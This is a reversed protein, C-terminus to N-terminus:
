TSATPRSSRKALVFGAAGLALVWGLPVISDRDAPREPSQEVFGGSTGGAAPNAGIAVKSNSVGGKVTSNTAGTKTVGGNLVEPKNVGNVAGPSGPTAPDSGSSGSSDAGDAGGSTSNGSSSQDGASNSDNGGSPGSAPNSGTGAAPNDGGSPNAGGGPAPNNGGGPDPNAEPTPTEEEEVPAPGAGVPVATYSEKTPAGPIQSINTFAQDVLNQPLPAYDLAVAIEQGKGVAYNLFQALAKGKEPTMGDTQHVLAYSYTSPNYAAPDPPDFVLKQTGRPDDGAFKLAATVAAETPKVFKGAANLVSAVPISRVKAFGSEVVAISSEGTSPNAVYDATEVSGGAPVSGPPIPWQSSPPGPAGEFGSNPDGGEYGKSANVFDSWIQPPAMKICYQGLIYSTGAPGKRLVLKIRKQKVGALATNIPRGDPGVKLRPDTWEKIEGTFIACATEATLKLDTIARGASDRLNFMFAMGGASVPVYAFPFTPTDSIYPIDSMAFDVGKERFRQRGEGSSTGLYNVSLNYPPVRVDALWQVVELLVFSSGEGSITEAAAAPRWPLVIFMLMALALRCSVRISKM